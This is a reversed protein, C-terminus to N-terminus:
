NYYNNYNINYNYYSHYLGKKISKITDERAKYADEITKKINLIPYEIHEKYNDYIKSVIEEIVEMLEGDKHMRYLKFSLLSLSITALISRFFYSEYVTPRRARIDIKGIPYPGVDNNWYGIPKRRRQYFKLVDAIVTCLHALKKDCDDNEYYGNRSLTNTNSLLDATSIQLSRFSKMSPPIFRDSSARPTGVSPFAEEVEFFDLFTDDDENTNKLKNEKQYIM